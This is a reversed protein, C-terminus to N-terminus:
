KASIAGLLLFFFLLLLVVTATHFGIWFRKKLRSFRGLSEPVLIAQLAFARSELRSNFSSLRITRDTPFDEDVADVVLTQYFHESDVVGDEPISHVVIGSSPAPADGRVAIDGGDRPYHIGLFDGREVPLPDPVDVRHIGITAPPLAIRHKLVYEDEALQRWVGAFATGDPAGRFYVIQRLTSDCTVQNSLM